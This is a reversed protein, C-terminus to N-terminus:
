NCGQIIPPPHLSQLLPMPFRRAPEAPLSESSTSSHSFLFSCLFGDLSFRIPLTDVTHNALVDPSTATLLLDNIQHFRRSIARTIESLSSLNVRPFFLEHMPHPGALIWTNNRCDFLDAALSELNSATCDLACRSRCLIRSIAPFAYAFLIECLM